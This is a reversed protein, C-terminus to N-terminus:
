TMGSVELVVQNPGTIEYGALSTSDSSGCGTLGVSLALLLGSSLISSRM